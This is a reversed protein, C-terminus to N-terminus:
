PFFREFGDSKLSFRKGRLYELEGETEGFAFKVSYSCLAQWSQNYQRNKEAFGYKTDGLLPTGAASFQVRIQHTRGTQLLVEVLSLGGGSKLTRYNLKATLAGPTGQAAARVLNLESDKVLYHTLEGCPPAPRGLVVCHYTKEIEHLRIRETIERLAMSNKAAIVIGRTNRDIRNCLSPTFSNEKEPSYEGADYLYRQIKNVLTHVAERADSHCLLGAPKNVLLINDDEYIVDIQPDARLFLGENQQEGFFEDNIYLSLVDGEALRYANETRKENVKIRKIRIFKNALAPPLSPLAKQLFRDLRQGSDNKTIVIKRM